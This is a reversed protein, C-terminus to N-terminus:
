IIRINIARYGKPTKVVDFEVKLDRCIEFNDYPMSIDKYDFILDRGKKRRIFGFGKLENYVNIFGDNM